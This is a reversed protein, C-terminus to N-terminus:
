LQSLKEREPNLQTRVTVTMQIRDIFNACNLDNTKLVNM